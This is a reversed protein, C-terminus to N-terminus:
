KVVQFEAKGCKPCEYVAFSKKKVFLEFLNGFVGYRRGEHFKYIESYVLPTGCRLCNMNNEM